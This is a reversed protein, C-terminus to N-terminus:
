GTKRHSTPEKRAEKSLLVIGDLDGKTFRAEYSYRHNETSGHFEFTGHQNHDVWWEEDVTQEWGPLPGFTDAAEWAEWSDYGRDRAKEAREEPTLDRMSQEQRLLRGDATLKYAQMFPRGITKTQWDVAQHDGDFAPLDVGPEIVLDDYLGM